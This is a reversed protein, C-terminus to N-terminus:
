SEGAHGTFVSGAVVGWLLALGKSVNAASDFGHPETPDQGVEALVEAFLQDALGQVGIDADPVAVGLAM